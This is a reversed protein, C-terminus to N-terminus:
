CRAVKKDYHQNVPVDDTVWNGLIIGKLDFFVTLMVKFRVHKTLNKTAVWRNTQISPRLDYQEPTRLRM